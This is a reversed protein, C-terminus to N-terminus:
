PVLEGAACCLVSLCDVSWVCLMVYFSFRSLCYIRLEHLVQLIHVGWVCEGVWGGMCVYMWGGGGDCVTPKYTIRVYMRVYTRMYLM